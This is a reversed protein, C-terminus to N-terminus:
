QLYSINMHNDTEANIKKMWSKIEPCCTSKHNQPIKVLQDKIKFYEDEALAERMNGKEYCYWLKDVQLYLIELEHHMDIFNKGEKLFPFYPLAINLIQAGAVLVGWAYPVNEWVSWAAISGASSIAILLSCYRSYRDSRKYCDYTYLSQFKVEALLNWIRNRM